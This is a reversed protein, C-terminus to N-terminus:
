SVVVSERVMFNQSRENDMFEGTDAIWRQGAASERFAGLEEKNSFWLIAIGDVGGVPGDPFINQEYRVLQSIETALRAHVGTWHQVFQEHTTDPKRALLSILKFM